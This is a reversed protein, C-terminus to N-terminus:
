CQCVVDFLVLENDEQVSIGCEAEEMDGNFPHQIVPIDLWMMRKDHSLIRPGVCIWLVIRITEVAGECVRTEHNYLVVLVSHRNEFCPMLAGVVYSVGVARLPLLGLEMFLGCEALINAVIVFLVDLLKVTALGVAIWTNGDAVALALKDSMVPKLLVMNLGVEALVDHVSEGKGDLFDEGLVDAADDGLM